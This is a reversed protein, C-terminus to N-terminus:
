KLQLVEIAFQIDTLYAVNRNIAVDQMVDFIKYYSYVLESIQTYNLCYCSLLIYCIM